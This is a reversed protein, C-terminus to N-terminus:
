YADSFTVTDTVLRPTWTESATTCDAETLIAPDSCAGTTADAVTVVNSGDYSSVGVISSSHSTITLTVSFDMVLPGIIAGDNCCTAWSWSNSFDGNSDISISESDDDNVVAGSLGTFGTGDITINGTTGSDRNSDIFLAMFLESGESAPEQYIMEVVHNEVELGTNSSANRGAGDNDEDYWTVADTTGAFPALVQTVGGQTVAVCTTTADCDDDVGNSCTETNGNYVAADLDDCDTDAGGAAAGEDGDGDADPDGLDCLGDSDTDTGDSAPDSVGSICDECTDADSDGCVNPDLPDSDASDGVTDNDDDTDFCDPELDGDTNTFEDVLSGDCDWDAGDCIDVAGNHISANNDDCDTTDPDNDNDDDLDTCDPELDGDFDDFEDVLSGDCDSDVTDCSETALSHISNDADNCDGECGREGDSDGDAEDAPTDADCDNDNGDCIETAGPNSTADSDDCDEGGVVATDTGVWDCEVYGDGDDDIEDVPVVADCDEDLGNCLEVANPHITGDSDDCDGTASAHGDVPACDNVATGTEDGYGDDDTDPYWDVYEVDNDILEDCNNDIGDCLEPATPYTNIDNDDCDQCSDSGDTDADAGIDITGDCDNDVGDGCAETAGPNVEPDADNCDDGGEQDSTYGDGDNDAGPVATGTGALAVQLLEELEDGNQRSFILSAADEGIATPSYTVQMAISAGSALEFPWPRSEIGFTAAGSAGFSPELLVATSEGSNTISLSTVAQQGIVVQGFNVESPASALAVSGPAENCGSIFLLVVM